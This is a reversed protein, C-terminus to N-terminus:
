AGKIEARKKLRDMIAEYRIASCMRLFNIKDKKCMLHYDKKVDKTRGKYKICFYKIRKATKGNM